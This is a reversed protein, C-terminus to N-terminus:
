NFVIEDGVALYLEYIGSLERQAGQLFERIRRNYKSM